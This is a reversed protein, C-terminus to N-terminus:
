GGAIEDSIRRLKEASSTLQLVERIFLQAKDAADARMGVSGVNDQLQFVWDGDGTKTAEIRIDRDADIYAYLKQTMSRKIDLMEPAPKLPDMSSLVRGPYLLSETSVHTM